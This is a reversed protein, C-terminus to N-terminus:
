IDKTLVLDASAIQQTQKLTEAQLATQKSLELVQWVAFAIGGIVAISELASLWKVFDFKMKGRGRTACHAFLV